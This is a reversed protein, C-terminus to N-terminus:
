CRVRARVCASAELGIQTEVSSRCQGTALTCRLRAEMNFSYSLASFRFHVILHYDLKLLKSGFFSPAIRVFSVRSTITMMKTVSILM